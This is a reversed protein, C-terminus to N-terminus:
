STAAQAGPRDEIISGPISQAKMIEKYHEQYFAPDQIQSMTFKTVPNNPNPPNTPNGISPTGSLLYPKDKALSEIAEDIGKVEGTAEDVTVKTMDILKSAADLDKIGKASAASKIKDMVDRDRISKKLDAIEKDKAESLEKFRGQEELEKAKRADEADKLKKHEKQIALLETMRPTKWLRQDELLKAVQEDSLKSLDLKSYDIEGEKPAPTPAPAPTPNPNNPDPTM